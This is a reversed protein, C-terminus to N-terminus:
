AFARIAHLVQRAGNRTASSTAARYVLETSVVSNDVKDHPSQFLTTTRTDISGRYRERPVFPGSHLRTLREGSRKSRSPTPLLVSSHQASIIKGTGRIQLALGLFARCLSKDDCRCQARTNTLTMIQASSQSHLLHFCQGLMITGYFRVVDSQDSYTRVYKRGRINLSEVRHAHNPQLISVKIVLIHSAVLSQSLTRM